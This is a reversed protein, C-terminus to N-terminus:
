LTLLLFTVFIVTLTSMVDCINMLMYGLEIIVTHISYSVTNITDVATDIIVM